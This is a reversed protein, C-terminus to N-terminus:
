PQDKTSGALANTIVEYLLDMVQTFNRKLSSAYIGDNSGALQAGLGDVLEDIQEKSHRATGSTLLEGVLDQYGAIDGQMIPPIDFRVQATVIPIKHNEVIIVRMGNDLLFSKHEGLHVEPAPGAPPAKTRDVQATMVAPTLLTAALALTHLLPSKM